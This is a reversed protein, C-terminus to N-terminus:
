IVWYNFSIVVCTALSVENESSQYTNGQVVIRLTQENMRVKIKLYVVQNFGSVSPLSGLGLPTPTENARAIIM